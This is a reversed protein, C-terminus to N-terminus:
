RGDASSRRTDRRERDVFSGFRLSQGAKMPSKPAHMPLKWASGMGAASLFLSDTPDPMEREHDSLEIQIQAPEGEGLQANSEPELIVAVRM